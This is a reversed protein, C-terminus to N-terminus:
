AADFAPLSGAMRTLRSWVVFAPELRPPRGPDLRIMGFIVDRRVPEPLQPLPMTVIKLAM